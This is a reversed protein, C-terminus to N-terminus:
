KFIAFAQVELVFAYRSPDELREITEDEIFIKDITYKPSQSTVSERKLALGMQKGLAVADAYTAAYGVVEVRALQYEAKEKTHHVNTGTGEYTIFPLTTGSPAEIPYIKTGVLNTVGSRNALLTKIGHTYEM